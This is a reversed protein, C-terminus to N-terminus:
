KKIMGIINALQEKSIGHENCYQAIKEAQKENPQNQLQNVMQKQQPNLLSMALQMPNSSNSMQGLLSQMNLM